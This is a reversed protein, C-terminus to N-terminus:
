IKSLARDLATIAIDAHDRQFVVPPRIKLINGLVGESGILVGEDRMLNLVRSTENKAPTLKKRDTVLEVGLALGTGRVDGILDHKEMLQKIGNKLYRGTVSANQILNEREIIDLVALGAACSVNNGGFTSFFATEKLFCEMIEPTTIVVGLPHGNGAPKGITVIDPVVDHHMHGWMTDGMRGFGSQVEDGICLGGAARVNAFVSALYDKQPELVGNTMFASDVMFAAPKMGAEALSAIARDADKAYLRGLDPMGYKHIGRYGDPAMLTRMHPAIAGTLSGSPSFADVADTIGHYAFDMTLGGTNGTYAKAMRWAIDNAESGSNVFACVKLKGPLTTGLRESYELVQEGLYRTNTNLTKIQQTLANVVHPHCHGVHPVNNYCDLYRRGEVSTLWVGDGSVMHLPPDYFVYLRSGMVAKRREIMRDVSVTANKHKFNGCAAFAAQTFAERGIGIISACADLGTEGYEALYNAEDPTEKSRVANTLPTLLLRALVLDYLLNIEEDELPTVAHYAALMTQMVDVAKDPAIIFDAITDAIDIVLPGHVMDGFDIIGAIEPSAGATLILNHAHVDGHIVQTRLRALSPLVNKDFTGVIRRVMDRHAAPLLDVYPQFKSIERIDWLLGRNAIAPLSLGRMARGLRAVMTGIKRNLATDLVSADAIRGELFSLVYFLHQSKGGPSAIRVTTDGSRASRVRPVPLTPDVAAIHRLTEIQANIIDEPEETNSIKLVWATGDAERLRVNQDRESYLPELTGRLGFHQEALREIESVPFRPANAHLFKM